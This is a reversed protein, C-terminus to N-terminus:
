TRVKVEPRLRKYNEMSGSYGLREGKRINRVNEYMFM